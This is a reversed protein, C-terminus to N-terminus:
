KKEQMIIQQSLMNLLQKDQNYIPSNYGFVDKLLKNVGQLGNNYTNKYASYDVHLDPMYTKILFQYIDQYTAYDILEQAKQAPHHTEINKAVIPISYRCITNDEIMSLHLKNYADDAHVLVIQHQRRLIRTNNYSTRGYETNNALEYIRESVMSSEELVMNLARAYMCSSFRRHLQLLQDDLRDKQPNDASNELLNLAVRVAWDFNAHYHKYRESNNSTGLYDLQELPLQNWLCDFHNKSPALVILQLLNDKAQLIYVHRNIMFAIMDSAFMILYIKANKDKLFQQALAWQSKKLM